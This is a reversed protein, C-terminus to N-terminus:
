SAFACHGYRNVSRQLLLSSSGASEVAAAFAAEHFFPVLPDRITHLTVTPDSLQGTPTYYRELYNLADPTATFRGVNANLQALLAPPLPALPNATYTVGSNDFLDHGHARELLDAAGRVNYGLATLLSTILETANNGALPTQEIRAIAGLGTPNAIVVAQAPGLVQTNLNLGEPVNMVHGPIVGAYFYDFLVRNPDVVSAAM